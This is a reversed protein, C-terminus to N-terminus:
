SRTIENSLQDSDGHEWPFYQQLREGARAIGAILGEKYAGKKFQEAMADKTCDWFDSEVVEDIGKDGCIVFRHDSVAVYILVGNRKLTNDMKLLHFIQTARKFHDEDTHQEIHVRIEGSTKSEAERISEIVAAEDATSLFKEAM